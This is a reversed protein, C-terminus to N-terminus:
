ESFIMLTEGSSMTVTPLFSLTRYILLAAQLIKPMLSGASMMPYGTDRM